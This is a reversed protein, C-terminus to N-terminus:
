VKMTVALGPERTPVMRYGMPLFLPKKMPKPRESPNRTLHKIMDNRRNLLEHCMATIEGVGRRQEFKKQRAMEAIDKMEDMTTEMGGLVLVAARGGQGRALGGSEVSQTLEMRNGDQSPKVVRTVTTGGAGVGVYLSDVKENPNYRHKPAFFDM